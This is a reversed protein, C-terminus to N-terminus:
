IGQSCLNGELNFTKLVRYLKGAPLGMVSYFDGDISDIFRCGFGQIGYAGAKDRPEGSSVYWEIDDECLENFTVSSAVIFSECKKSSIVCVGTYVWHTKGSLSRLMEAADTDSKPKGLIKGELVVITDAGIVTSTKNKEFIDKAKLEALHQAVDRPPMDAPYNECVDSVCCLFDFGLKQLIEKRRPSASALILMSYVWIIASPM